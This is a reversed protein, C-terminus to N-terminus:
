ESSVQAFLYLDYDGAKAGEVAGQGGSLAYHVARRAITSGASRAASGLMTGLLGSGLGSGGGTNHNDQRKHDHDHTSGAKGGHGGKNESKAKHSKEQRVM